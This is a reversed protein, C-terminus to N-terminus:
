QTYYIKHFRFGLDRSDGPVSATVPLNIQACLIRKNGQGISVPMALTCAAKECIRDVSQTGNKLSIPQNVLGDILTVVLSVEAHQTTNNVKPYVFCIKPDRKESWRYGEETGSFGHFKIRKDENRWDVSEESQLPTTMSLFYDDQTKRGFLVLVIWILVLGLSFFLRM